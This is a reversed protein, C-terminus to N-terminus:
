GRRAFPLVDPDLGITRAADVLLSTRWAAIRRRVDEPREVVPLREGSTLTVTTDPRAEVTQILDPNLLFPEPERGLRHLEIM